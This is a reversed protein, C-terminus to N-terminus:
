LGVFSQDLAEFVRQVFKEVLLCLVMMEGLIKQLVCEDGREAFELAVVRVIREGGPYEGDGVPQGDAIIAFLFRLDLLEVKRCVLCGKARQHFGFPVLCDPHLGLPQERLIVERSQPQKVGLSHLDILDSLHHILADAGHFDPQVAGALAQGGM